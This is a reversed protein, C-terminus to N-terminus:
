GTLDEWWVEDPDFASAYPSADTLTRSWISFSDVWVSARRAARHSRMRARLMNWSNSAHAVAIGASIAEDEGPRNLFESVALLAKETSTVAARLAHRDDPHKLRRIARREHPLWDAHLEHLDAIRRFAVAINPPREFTLGPGM